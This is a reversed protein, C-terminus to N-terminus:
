VLSWPSKLPGVYIKPGEYQDSTIDIIISKNLLLFTHNHNKYKGNIIKSGSFLSKLYVSTLGCNLHPFIKKSHKIFPNIDKIYNYNQYLKKLRIEDIKWAEFEDRTKTAIQKIKQDIM